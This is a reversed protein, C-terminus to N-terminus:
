NSVKHSKIKGCHVCRSLYTYVIESPHADDKNDYVNTKHTKILEYQHLGILCKWDKKQM